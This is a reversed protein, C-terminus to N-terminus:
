LKHKINTCSDLIRKMENKSLVKPLRYKKRPRHIEFYQKERGLIKEYYFKIVNIRQNQQNTSINESKFLDLINANIQDKSIKALCVNSFYNYFGLFYTCYINITNPSYRKQILRNKYETLINDM